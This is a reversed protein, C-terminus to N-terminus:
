SETGGRRETQRKKRGMVMLTGMLRYM